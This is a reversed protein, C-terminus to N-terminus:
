IRHFNMAFCIKDECDIKHNNTNSGKECNWVLASFLVLDFKAEKNQLLLLNDRSTFYLM